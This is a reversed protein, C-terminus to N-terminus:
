GKKYGFTAILKILAQGLLNAESTNGSEAKLRAIEKNAEALSKEAVDARKTLTAIQVDKAKIQATLYGRHTKQVNWAHRIYDEPPKSGWADKLIKDYDGKHTKTMDFGEVESAIIRLVDIPTTVSAEKIVKVDNVSEGWGVYVPSHNKTYDAISNYTTGDSWFKGNALRVGIHGWNKNQGDITATYAFFVPVDVGMPITSIHQETNEWAEWASNYKGPISYGRQVNGLCLNKIATAKSQDFPKVQTWAM